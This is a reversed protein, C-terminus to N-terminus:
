SRADERTWSRLLDAIEDPSSDIFENLDTVERSPPGGGIAPRTAAAALSAQHAALLQQQAGDFPLAVATRREKKSSRLLLLILVILGIVLLATRGLSFVGASKKAKAAAKAAATAATTSATSFPMSVVTVKDGRSAQIGAASAVLTKVTAPNVNAKTNLLVAVQLQKITGAAQKTTTNITGVAFQQASDKKTYAGAGTTTTTAPATTTGIAAGTGTPGTGNYIESDNTKSTPVAIPKGNKATQVSQSNITSTNCDLTGAVQVQVNGPGAVTQLLQDLSTSLNNDFTKAQCGSGSNATNVGPAALINGNTDAVTVNGPNLNPVASAVLHVISTVQTGTLSSSGGLGVLVSATTTSNTAVGFTDTQPLAIAVQASTVGQISEITSELEGQLDSQYAAQQSASSSTLGQKDLNTFGGGQAPLGAASMALREANVDKGPVLVTAGGDALQYPVGSGSLKSTISSADSAKLGTFLPQYSPKGAIHFYVLGGVLAAILAFTSMAKQGPTFGNAFQTARTRVDQLDAAM